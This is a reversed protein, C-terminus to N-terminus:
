NPICNVFEDVYRYYMMIEKFFHSVAQLQKQMRVGYMQGVLRRLIARIQSTHSISLVFPRTLGGGAGGFHARPVPWSPVAVQPASSQSGWEPILIEPAPVLINIRCSSPSGRTCRLSSVVAKRGLLHCSACSTLVRPRLLM